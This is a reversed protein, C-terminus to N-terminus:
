HVKHKNKRCCDCLLHKISPYFDRAMEGVMYAVEEGAPNVGIIQAIQAALHCFEHTASNYFEAASVRMYGETTEKVSVITLNNALANLLKKTEDMENELNKVEQQLDNYKDFIESDDYGESCGTLVMLTALFFYFLKKMTYLNLIKFDTNVYGACTPYGIVFICFQVGM